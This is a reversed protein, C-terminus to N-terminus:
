TLISKDPHVQVGVPFRGLATKIVSISLIGVFIFFSSHPVVSQPVVSLVALVFWWGFCVVFSVLCVAELVSEVSVVFLLKARLGPKGPCCRLM